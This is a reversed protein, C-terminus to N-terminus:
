RRTLAVVSAAAVVVHMVMLVVVAPVTAAPDAVLLAVDPVFSVVLVAAAVRRFTRDYDGGRRALLAYVVTAGVAGAASLFVVPPYALAMFPQVLGSALVVALVLANGVVSGLVAIAGRIALARMGIQRVSVTANM